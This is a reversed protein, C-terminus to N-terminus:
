CHCFPLTSLLVTQCHSDMEKNGPRFWREPNFEDADEGFIQKNRHIVYPNTGVTVGENIFQGAIERGGKPVERPLRAAAGPHIRMGERCVAHLYPLKISDGYQVYEGPLLGTAVANDLEDKVKKLYQPNKLLHYLIACLTIGTTDSGAFRSTGDAVAGSSSLLKASRPHTPPLVM